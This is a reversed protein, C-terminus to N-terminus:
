NIIKEIKIIGGELDSYSVDGMKRSLDDLEDIDVIFEIINGNSVVYQHTSNTHIDQKVDGIMVNIKKGTSLTIIFEDGCNVTYFSGMAVLFKGDIMRFGNENTYAQEQLEWQKSEKDTIAKYSMYTKFSGDVENPIEMEQLELLDEDNIKTNEIEKKIEVNSEKEPLIDIKDMNIDTAELQESNYVNADVVQTNICFTTILLISFFKIYKNYEKIKFNM